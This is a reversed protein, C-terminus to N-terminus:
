IWHILPFDMRYVLNKNKPFVRFSYDYVGANRLPFECVYKAKVEGIYTSVLEEKFMVKKLGGGNSNGMVIEIGIDDKSLGALDLIIEAHFMTGFEVAGKDVDPVDLSDIKINSWKNLITKKWDVLDRAVKFDDKYVLEKRDFLAQYFNSYYDNVMRQMTFEPAIKNITNKIYSVWKKSVGNKDQEYYINAIENELTNYISEADLEDQFAQNDYTRTEEVAWGADAKFGEAWWGDLVSFNVVGNMVAKEGSTGSAELPRTPTNLWIDVSSTLLKGLTMDYNDIFIIKGVFQPMKSIEIIRKILGQGEKDAPHAKGAFFFYVPKETNNIIKDLRDLNMFLLHARKYTAFRRAFGIILAKEDFQSLVNLTHRPNEAKKGLASRLRVKLDAILKSKLQLRINWMDEDSVDQIKDWHNSDFQKDAFDKGFYNEHIQQWLKDTWTYYHVGNTVHGIHLEEPYYGPYLGAFMERSVRGHIKSVGNVEQSLKTALVSMSFNENNDHQNYRGLAMFEEWSISFIDCFHSIYARILHEEFVDHGAPVPTHTTFLTTSKVLERALNYDINLEEIFNKIRELSSFAAHGENAHFVDPNLGLQKILRVGGLGLIMEQKIRNERDGGYLQHTIHQDEPSNSKIDTDLLYLKIRGVNVQWVKANVTRGPLAVKVYVWENNKDRVPIIPLQTFKQPSYDAIQDGHQSLVQKFYGYRYLLGIGFLNKNSDSAQKLYDGALIGLGGSYIKLSSHLGYEMSFYAVKGEDVIPKKNMYAKFDSYVSKLNGMFLKNNLMKDVDDMSLEELLQIPNFESKKWSEPDISEFLEEAKYNWSWWLNYAMERLPMLEKPLAPEVLIKKWEPQNYNLEAKVKLNKTKKYLKRKPVREAAKKVAYDWVNFYNKSLKQWLAKQFVKDADSKVLSNDSMEYYTIISKSILDTTKEDNNSLRDIVVVSSNNEFNDNVWKGFGAFNTTITPIGFAVSELPTYGWPEYYSPFLSLDFGILFDYYNLNVVRDNANLYAPVFVLTVKSDGLNLDKAYALNLIPDNEPNHIHHTLFRSEIGANKNTFQAYPEHHNAPVTIFAVIDRDFDKDKINAIANIFVDIGKNRFEYRGSNIILYADDSIKKGRIKSAIEIARKRAEARKETYQKGKPVFDSEFGNITIENVSKNFFQNCEEATIASVTTFADSHLACLKELSHKSKLNFKQAISDADYEKINEYLPLGNGAISRGLVTAHTTFATGIHPANNKLYLLGSGTMWEHFHAVAYKDSLYFDTFSEIIIGASYGFIAPEIYDWQGHLSDLKYQEWLKAFISDKSSFLSTSDILIVKPKSAINWYGCRVKLGIKDVIPKWDHFLEADPIFEPNEETGKWVDPGILIYDEGYRDIISRAKTSVVTYIGGIKNCTEWSTEFIFDANISM